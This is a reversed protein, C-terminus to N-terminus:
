SRLGQVRRSPGTRRTPEDGRGGAMPLDSASLTGSTRSLACGRVLRSLEPLNHSLALRSLAEIFECSPTLDDRGSDHLFGRVLGALDERRERLPPVSIVRASLRELLGAGLGRERLLCRLDGRTAVVLRLDLRERAGDAARVSPPEEILEQLAHQAWMPLEGFDDLFLTGRHARRAVHVDDSSGASPVDSPVVFSEPSLSRASVAVFAGPRGSREHLLRALRAKGTGREGCLLLSDAGEAIESLERAIARMRAGGLWPEAADARPVHARLAALHTDAYRLLTGGIRVVDHDHLVQERVRLGNVFTGNTSGLDVLWFERGRRVVEAHVRSAVHDYPIALNNMEGRGITLRSAGLGVFGPPGGEPTSWMVVLAADPTASLGHMGDAALSPVTTLNANRKV